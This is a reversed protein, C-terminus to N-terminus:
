KRRMVWEAIVRALKRSVWLSLVMAAFFLLQFVVVHVELQRSVAITAFSLPPVILLTLLASVLLELRAQHRTQAELESNRRDRQTRCTQLYESAAKEQQEVSAVLEVPLANFLPLRLYHNDAQSGDQRGGLDISQPPYAESIPFLAMPQGAAGFSWASTAFSHTGVVALKIGLEQAQLRASKLLLFANMGPHFPSTKIGAACLTDRDARLVVAGDENKIELWPNSFDHTSPEWGPYWTAEWRRLSSGVVVPIRYRQQDRELDDPVASTVEVRAHNLSQSGGVRPPLGIEIRTLLYELADSREDFTKRSIISGREYWGVVHTDGERWLHPGETWRHRDLNLAEPAHCVRMRDCLEIFLADDM